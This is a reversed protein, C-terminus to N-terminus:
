QGSAETGATGSSQSEAAQRQVAELLVQPLVGMESACRKLHSGRSKSSSFHKGCIPCDPIRSVAPGSSGESEDLCRCLSLLM